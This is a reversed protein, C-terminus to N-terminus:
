EIRQGGRHNGLPFYNQRALSPLCDVLWERSNFGVIVVSVLPGSVSPPGQNLTEQPPERRILGAEALCALAGLTELRSEGSERAQHLIEELSRGAVGEWLAALRPDTAIRGGQPTVFIPRRGLSTVRVGDAKQYHIM